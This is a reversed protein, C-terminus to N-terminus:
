GFFYAVAPGVVITTADANGQSENEVYLDGDVALGPAVFFLAVPNLLISTYREEDSDEYLEGGLSSWSISGGLVVETKQGASWREPLEARGERGETAKSEGPKPSM